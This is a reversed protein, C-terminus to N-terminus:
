FKKIGLMIQAAHHCNMIVRFALMFHMEKGGRPLVYWDM